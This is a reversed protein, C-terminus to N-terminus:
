CSPVLLAFVVQQLRTSLVQESKSRRLICGVKKLENTKSSFKDEIEYLRTQMESVKEKGVKHTVEKKSIELKMALLAEEASTKEGRIKEILMEQKEVSAKYGDCLKRQEEVQNEVVELEKEKRTLRESISQLQGESSAFKGSVQPFANKLKSVDSIQIM